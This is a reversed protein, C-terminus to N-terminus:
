VLLVTNDLYKTTSNMYASAKYLISTSLQKRNFQLEVGVYNPFHQQCSFAYIAIYNEFELPM